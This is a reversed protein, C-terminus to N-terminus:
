PTMNLFVMIKVNVLKLIDFRKQFLFGSFTVSVDVSFSVSKEWGDGWWSGEWLPGGGSWGIGVILVSHKINQTHPQIFPLLATSACLPNPSEVVKVRQCRLKKKLNKCV